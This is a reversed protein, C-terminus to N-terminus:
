TAASVFRALEAAVRAIVGDWDGLATQRFLRATPYWPSKERHLTWRWDPAFPILVWLPRGMAGALHAVATDAAIVLDCLAIVAATDLFTELEGGVHTVRREGALIQADESRVERQISIFSAGVRGEGALPPPLVL